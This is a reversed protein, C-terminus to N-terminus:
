CEAARTAPGVMPEVDFDVLGTAQRELDPMVRFMAADVLRGLFVEDGDLRGLVGANLFYTGPAALCRFRFAVDIGAGAEVLDIGRPHAHTACGALELGSVTRIMMGFRVLTAAREFRVRYRYVYTRGARLVNVRRGDPTELHPAEIHAGQAAYSLTQPVLGPDFYGDASEADADNAAPGPIRQDLATGDLGQEFDRRIRERVAAAEGPPAYLLKHYRSIVPKPPGVALVEGADLLVVRDCLEAVTSAGHSVFLVTAGSERIRQIRAFCKRQFAEDGVSLAEDVVLIEPEVNIAVAFALRVYMGSSYTKVPQDIFDGIDAFAAIDDFRAEIERRELGLVTGNLFVNERGTFEANFGAGLELLAAVRGRVEVKGATPALIGCVVQLLTSKGSGNRGILGVTEGRRVDLDVDRLARFDRHWTRWRSGLVTELLRHHPREYVAYTKDVGRLHIALDECSM